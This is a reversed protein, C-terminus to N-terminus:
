AIFYHDYNTSVKSAFFHGFNVKRGGYRALFKTLYTQWIDFVHPWKFLAVGREYAKFSEEFYQNEELFLAYNLIIQPTAIKLDIIRDYVVKTSGFDGFSEELDAFMSWLKLSLYVRNQVPENNDFYNARKQPLGTSRKM